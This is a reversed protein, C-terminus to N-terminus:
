INLYELFTAIVQKRKKSRAAGMQNAYDAVLLDGKLDKGCLIKFQAIFNSKSLTLLDFGSNQFKANSELCDRAQGKPLNELLNVM